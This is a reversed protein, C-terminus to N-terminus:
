RHKVSCQSSRGHLFQWKTCLSLAVKCADQGTANWSRGKADTVLCRNEILSLPGQECYSQATVCGKKKSKKLCSSKAERMADRRSNGLGEYSQEVNDYAFCLWQGPPIRAYTLQTALCLVIVLYRM